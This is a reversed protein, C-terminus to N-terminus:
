FTFLIIRLYIKSVTAADLQTNLQHVAKEFLSFLHTNKKLKSMSKTIYWRKDATINDESYSLKLSKLLEVAWPFFPRQVM